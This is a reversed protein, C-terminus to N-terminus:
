KMRKRRSVLHSIAHYGEVPNRSRANLEEQQKVVEEASAALRAGGPSADTRSRAWETLCVRLIRDRGINRQLLDVLGAWADRGTQDTGAETESEAAPPVLRAASKWIFLLALVLLVTAVGHLRYKVALGMLSPDDNVNLHTEDFIVERAPGVLWALLASQRENRLAENSAFFSDTALVISGKGYPRDILVAKGQRAYVTRWASGMRRVYVGSRWRLTQPLGEVAARSVTAPQYTMTKPDPDLALFGLDLDLQSSLSIMRAPLFVANPQKGGSGPSSQRATEDAKKQRATEETEAKRISKSEPTAAPVPRAATASSAQNAAATPSILQGANDPSPCLTIVLRGGDVLFAELSRSDTEDFDSLSGLDLGLFFLTAGNGAHLDRLPRLNREATLHALGGLSDHFARAGLPDARLTSYAPYNDGSEYRLDFLLWIGGALAGALLLLLLFLLTTSRKVSM